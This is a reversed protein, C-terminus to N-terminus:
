AAEGTRYSEVWARVESVRFYVVKRSIAYHPLGLRKWRHLTRISIRLVRCVESAYLLDETPGACAVPHLSPSSGPKVGHRISVSDSM